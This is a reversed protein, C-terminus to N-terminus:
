PRDSHRQVWRIHDPTEVLLSRDVEAVALEGPRMEHPVSRLWRKRKELVEPTTEGGYGLIALAAEIDGPTAARGYESARTLVLGTVVQEIGDDDPLEHRRVLKVAYGHDPGAAFYAGFRDPDDPGEPVGPKDERWGRSAPPPLSRRPREEDTIAVNPQQAM